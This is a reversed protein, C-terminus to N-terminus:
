DWDDDDRDCGGPCCGFESGHSCCGHESKWDQTEQREARHQTTGNQAIKAGTRQEEPLRGLQADIASSFREVYYDHSLGCGAPPRSGDRLARWAPEDLASRPYRLRHHVIFVELSPWAEGLFSGPPHIFFVACAADVIVCTATRGPPEEQTKFDLAYGLEGLRVIQARLARRDITSDLKM